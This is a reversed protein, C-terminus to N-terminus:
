KKLLFESSRILNQNIKLLMLNIICYLKRSIHFREVFTSSLLVKTLTIIPETEHKKKAELSLFVFHSLPYKKCLPPIGVVINHM